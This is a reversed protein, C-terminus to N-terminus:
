IDALLSYYIEENDLMAYDAAEDIYSDNYYADQQQLAATAAQQEANHHNFYIAVSFVAICVCAAAYLLPRLRRILTPKTQVSEEQPLRSMVRDTLQDFYGEPVRFPNPRQSMKNRIYEEENMM